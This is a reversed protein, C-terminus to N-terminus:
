TVSLFYVSISIELHFLFCSMVAISIRVQVIQILGKRADPTITSGKVMMKGAKFELLINKLPLLFSFVDTLIIYALPSPDDFYSFSFL